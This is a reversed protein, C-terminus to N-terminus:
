NTPSHSVKEEDGPDSSTEGGEETDDGDEDMPPPPSQQQQQQQLHSHRELVEDKPQVHSSLSPHSIHPLIIGLVVSKALGTETCTTEVISLLYLVAGFSRKCPPAILSCLVHLENNMTCLTMQTMIAIQYM